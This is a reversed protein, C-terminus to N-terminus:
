RKERIGAPSFGRPQTKSATVVEDSFQSEFHTKCAQIHFRELGPAAVSIAEVGHTREDGLQDVIVMMGEQDGTDHRRKFVVQVLQRVPRVTIAPKLLLDSQSGDL